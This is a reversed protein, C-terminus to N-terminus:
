KFTRCVEKFNALVRSEQHKRIKIESKKKESKKKESKKKKVNRKEEENRKKRKKKETWCRKPDQCDTECIRILFFL